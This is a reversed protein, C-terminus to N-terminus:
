EYTFDTDVVVDEIKNIHETSPVYKRLMSVHFVNNVRSLAPPLALPDCQRDERYDLVPRSLNGKLGLRM